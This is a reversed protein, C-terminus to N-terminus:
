KPNTKAQAICSKLRREPNAAGWLAFQEKGVKELNNRSYDGSLLEKTGGLILIAVTINSEKGIDLRNLTASNMVPEDRKGLLEQIFAISGEGFSQAPGADGVVGYVFREEGSVQAHAVVIDGIKADGVHGGPLVFFPVQEANIYRSPRCERPAVDPSFEQERANTLTTAAVFYGPFAAGPGFTCPYGQETSPIIGQKFFATLNQEKWHFLYYDNAVKVAPSANARASGLVHDRILPWFTKWDRELEAGLLRKAGNFLKIGGSSFHDLACVGQVSYGQDPKRNFECTGKGTPDEPHYARPSGDADVHIVRTLALLQKPKISTEGQLDLLVAYTNSKKTRENTLRLSFHQMNCADDTRSGAGYSAGRRSFEINRDISATVGADDENLQMVMQNLQGQEPLGQAPASVPGLCGVLLCYVGALLRAIWTRKNNNM